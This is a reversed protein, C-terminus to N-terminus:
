IDAEFRLRLNAYSSLADMQEQTLFHQIVSPSNASVSDVWTAITTSGDLLTVTLTSSTTNIAYSSYAVRNGTKNLFNTTVPSLKVEFIDNSANVSSVVYDADYAHVGDNLQEYLPTPTWSGTSIDEIAIGFSNITITPEAPAAVSAASEAPPGRIIYLPVPISVASTAASSNVVTMRASITIDSYATATADARVVTIRLGQGPVYTTATALARVMYVFTSTTITTFTTASATTLVSTLIIKVTPVPAIVNTATATPANAIYPITPAWDSATADAVNPVVIVVGIADRLALHVAARDDSTSASFGVSRAGTGGTIEQVVAIVRTGFDINQVYTSNAGPAIDNAAPASTVINALGSNIAAFRLSNYASVSGDTVSQEALTGEEQLLVVGTPELEAGATVTIAVAYMENASNNRTVVVPQTGTAIPARTSNTLFWAKCDGPEGATDVARGGSVPLLNQGGYTVALADDANNNTFTFVLVGSFNDTNPTHNWTFSTGTTSGTTGTSSESSADFRVPTVVSVTPVWENAVSNPTNDVYIVKALADRVALYVAAVDDSGGTVGVNRSGTGATTEYVVTVGNAGFDINHLLTSSAGAAPPNPLGSYAGAYRVSNTASTGDSILAEALAQDEQFLTIGTVDTDRNTIGTNVTISVAYLIDANNNRNVVVTQTLGTPLNARRGLYWVQCDGPETVTDTARAQLVLDVGGYTVSTVQNTASSANFVYVLVGVPTSVSTHTWSFSAQNTSGTTGTHSEFASDHVIAM